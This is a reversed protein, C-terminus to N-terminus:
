PELGDEFSKLKKDTKHINPENGHMGKVPTEDFMNINIKEQKKVKSFPKRAGRAVTNSRKKAVKTLSKNVMAQNTTKMSNVGGNTRTKVSKSRSKGCSRLHVVLRDPLFTRGCHQCPELAEENFKKFAEANLQDLNYSGGNTKIDNSGGGGASIKLNDYDITPKPLKRRLHKPKQEEQKLFATKCQPLHICISKSFYEM